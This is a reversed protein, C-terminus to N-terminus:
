CSKREAHKVRWQAKEDHLLCRLAASECRGGRRLDIQGSCIGNCTPSHRNEKKVLDTLAQDMLQMGVSKPDSDPPFKLLSKNDRILNALAPCAWYFRM